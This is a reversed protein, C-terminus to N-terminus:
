PVQVVSMLGPQLVEFPSTAMTALGGTASNITFGEIVNSDPLTVYLYDDPTVAISAPQAGVLFPSGSVRGLLGNSQIVYAWIKGEASDLAYLYKQEANLALYKSEFGVAIPSGPVLTLAGTSPDVSFVAIQKSKNLGVFVFPPSSAGDFVIAEPGTLAGTVFSGPVPTLIGSAPAVLLFVSIAGKADFPNTAYLLTNASTASPQALVAQGSFGGDYPSGVVTSLAGNTAITFGSIGNQSTTYVAPGAVLWVPPSSVQDFAPFPSGPVAALAGSAQDIQFAHIMSEESDTVYLFQNQASAIGSAATPGPVSSSALLAGTTRDIPFSVIDGGHSSSTVYLFEAGGQATSGCTGKCVKSTAMGGGCQTLLMPFFVTALATLRRILSTSM